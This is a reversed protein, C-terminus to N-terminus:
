EVVTLKYSYKAGKYWVFYPGDERSELIEDIIHHGGTPTVIIIEYTKSTFVEFMEPIEIDVKDYIESMPVSYSYQPIKESGLVNYSKYVQLKSM